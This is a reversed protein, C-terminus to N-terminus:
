KTITVTYIQRDTDYGSVLAKCNPAYVNNIMWHMYRESKAYKRTITNNRRDIVLYAM